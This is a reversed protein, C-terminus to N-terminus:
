PLRLSSVEEAAAPQMSRILPQSLMWLDCVLWHRVRADACLRCPCHVFSMYQRVAPARIASEIIADHRRACERDPAHYHYRIACGHTDDIPHAEPHLHKSIAHFRSPYTHKDSKVLLCDRVPLTSRPHPDSSRALQSFM